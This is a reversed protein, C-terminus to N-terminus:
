PRDAREQALAPVPASEVVVKDAFRADLWANASDLDRDKRFDEARALVENLFAEESAPYALRLAPAALMRDWRARVAAWFPATEDWYRRAPSFDHGAVLRYDNFGFERVLSRDRGDRRVVKTNDQEHTWGSPTITHRNEVNLLEYDDRTTYERRPLPRWTRESTWTAVGYRHNWRGIGAYRPADHVEYVSQKWTGAREDPTRVRREFRQDGVYVWHAPAEYEWDQRWHKIVGGGPMVLLHQLVIRNGRDEVLLVLEHAGSDKDPRTAYGPALAVTEDFHFSVRYEGQMALIARRDCEFADAPDACPPLEREIPAPKAAVPVGRDGASTGYPTTACAALLGAAAAITTRLILNRM